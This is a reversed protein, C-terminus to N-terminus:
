GKSVGSPESVPEELVTCFPVHRSGDSVIEEEDSIQEPCVKFERISLSRRAM